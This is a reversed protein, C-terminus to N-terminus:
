LYGRLHVSVQTDNNAVESAEKEQGQIKTCYQLDCEIPDLFIQKSQKHDIAATM